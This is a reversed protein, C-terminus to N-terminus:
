LICRWCGTRISRRLFRHANLFTYCISFSMRRKLACRNRVSRTKATVAVVIAGLSKQPKLLTDVYTRMSIRWM